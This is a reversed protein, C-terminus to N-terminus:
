AAVERITRHWRVFDFDEGGSPVMDLLAQASRKAVLQGSPETLEAMEEPTLFAVTCRCNVSLGAPLAPDGPYAANAGSITFPQGIAVIQGDAAAHSERTRSDRTAIWEQGAIVDAPLTGAALTAAGNYASIVETRAITEARSESAVKFVQRIRDALQDISDGGEVGAVLESRIADYTTQTVQGALQQARQEIFEQVWAATMDFSVGFQATVRATGATAADDLLDHVLEATVEEWFVPDFISSPDISPAPDPLPDARMEALMQRGRKGTLRALTADLQKGFMRRMARAWRGEIATAVADNTRWIRARRQELQEPDLIRTEATHIATHVPPPEASAPPMRQELEALAARAVEDTSGGELGWGQLVAVEEDTLFRDGDPLLELGYDARAENIKMIRAFLLAPAGVEQTIPKIRRALAPVQRLDFWCVEDGLRPALQMNIDDQLDVLDPLLTTEWWARDEVEANDFTRGSADLKSWPTGLAIAIEVMADKRTEVLRSDKASLGLVKVDISEGVPGDGDAGVENIAVRGSNDPGGYDSSWNRTFRQRHDDDPFATVTIIAAPVANNRLFGIGYRDCLNVLSLDFRAAQLESEAKRFDTGSPDWSYFIQDPSYKVAENGTGYEFVRFWETGGKSPFAQLNAIALPWLGVIRDSNPATEIEWARRGTVIEQAMTWRLLKRASLKPAPGGPPPGLLKTIPADLRISAADGMKRGAVIPVSAIANARLQVCRYAIVNACYGFRFAQEANWEEIQPTSPSAWAQRQTAGRPDRRELAGPGLVEVLERSRVDIIRGTV